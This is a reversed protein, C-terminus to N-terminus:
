RKVSLFVDVCPFSFIGESRCPDIRSVCGSLYDEATTNGFPCGTVRLTNDPPTAVNYIVSNVALAVLKLIEQMDDRSVARRRSPRVQPLHNATESVRQWDHEYHLLAWLFWLTNGRSPVFTFTRMLKSMKTCILRKTVWCLM